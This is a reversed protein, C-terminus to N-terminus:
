GALGAAQLDDVIANALASTDLADVRNKDVQDAVSAIADRLATNTVNVVLVATGEVFATTSSAEVSVTDSATFANAATIASGAVRAGIPTMNASTLAIAGGTLNTTGIEMNLTTLKAATTAPKVVFVEVSDITGAFGPTWTTLVDGDAISALDLPFQWSQKGVGAALTTSVTGGTNDTLDAATRAAHTRDATSYTQTYASQATGNSVLAAATVRNNQDDRLTGDASLTPTRAM